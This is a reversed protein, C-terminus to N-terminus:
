AQVPRADSPAPPLGSRILGRERLLRLFAKVTPVGLSEPRVVAGTVRDLPAPLAVGRVADYDRVLAESMISIGLGRAVMAAITANEHLRYAPEMPGILGRVYGLIVQECVPDGYVLFPTRALDETEVRDGPWDPPVVAVCPTRDVEFAILESLTPLLAFGVDARAERVADEVGVPVAEEIAIEVEPWREAYAVVVDGVVHQLISPYGAVRLRGHLAGGALAAEQRIAGHLELVQRAHRAVRTGVATPRAGHRGRRVLQAGLDRELEALARSVSSQAVGLDLAAASLSGADLVALFAKLQAHTM